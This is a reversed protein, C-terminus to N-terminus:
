LRCEKGVRREESRSEAKEMLELTSNKELIDYDLEMAKVSLATNKYVSVMMWEVGRFGELIQATLSLFFVTGVLFAAQVMVDRFSGKEVLLDVIRAGFIIEAFPVAKRLLTSTAAFPLYAPNLRQLLGINKKVEKWFDRNM